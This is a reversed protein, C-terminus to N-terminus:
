PDLHIAGTVDVAARDVVSRERDALQRLLASHAAKAREGRVVPELRRRSEEFPVVQPPLREVLRIVHYGYATRTVASTGGVDKIAHAARAFSEVVSGGGSTVIEGQETIPDLSEVKVKFGDAAVARAAREFEAPDKVDRVAARIAEAVVRARPEEAEASFQVVAHITRVSVEFEEALATATVRGRLQLLILVSLLRSARM